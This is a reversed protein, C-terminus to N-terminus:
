GLGVPEGLTVPDGVRIEGPRSVEAYVGVCPYAVGSGAVHVSNHEAITRLVQPDAPLDGQNVTTLVCRPVAISTTFEATGIFMERSQWGNEAFGDASTEIVINPRFRAVEFRSSPELESLRQLTSRSLIHVSGFNFFNGRVSMFRGADITEEGEEIRSAAGFFPDADNKLERMWTEDFSADQPPEVAIEVSRGLWERLRELLEADTVRLSEGDPFRVRVASAETFASLELVRRWRKPRKASVVKGTLEDILAFVRDGRLGREDVAGMELAEGLMSKIPYRHVEAVRGVIMAKAATM